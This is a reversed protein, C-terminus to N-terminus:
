EHQFRLGCGTERGARAAKRHQEAARTKKRQVDKRRGVGAGNLIVGRRGHWVWGIGAGEKRGGREM